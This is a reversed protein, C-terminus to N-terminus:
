VLYHSFERPEKTILYTSVDSWTRPLLIQYSTIKAVEVLDGTSSTSTRQKEGVQQVSIQSHSRLLWQPLLSPCQVKLITWWELGKGRSRDWWEEVIAHLFVLCKQRTSGICNTNEKNCFSLTCWLLYLIRIDHSWEKPSTALSFDFGKLLPCHFSPSDEELWYVTGELHHHLCLADSDFQLHWEDQTFHQPSGGLFLSM